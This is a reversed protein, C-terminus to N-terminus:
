KLNQENDTLLTYKARKITVTDGHTKGKILRSFNGKNVGFEGAAMSMSEFWKQEGTLVSRFGIRHSLHSNSCGKSRGRKVESINKQEDMTQGHPLVMKSKCANIFVQESMKIFYHTRKVEKIQWNGWIKNWEKIKQISEKEHVKYGLKALTSAGKQSLYIDVQRGITRRRLSFIPNQRQFNEQEEVLSAISERKQNWDKIFNSDKENYGILICYSNVTQSLKSEEIDPNDEKLGDIFKKVKLWKSIIQEHDHEMTKLEEFKISFESKLDKDLKNNKHKWLSFLENKDTLVVHWNFPFHFISNDITQPYKFKIAKIIEQDKEHSPLSHFNNPLIIRNLFEKGNEMCNMRISELGGSYREELASLQAEQQMKELQNDM